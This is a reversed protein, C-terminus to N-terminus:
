TGDEQTVTISNQIKEFKGAGIGSVKMVDEVCRFNGNAARYDVIRQALTAGIGPLADGCGAQTITQPLRLRRLHEAKREQTLRQRSTGPNRVLGPRHFGDAPLWTQNTGIHTIELHGKGSIQRQRFENQM